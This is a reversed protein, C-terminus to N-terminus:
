HLLDGVRTLQRPPWSFYIFLAKGRIYNEPVFGWYRSDNSHDRNDGMCFYHAEPVVRKIPGLRPANKDYLVIHEADNVTEVFQDSQQTFGRMDRYIFEGDPKKAVTQGNVIVDTGRVEVTDGPVGMIRKIYDKSPDNPFKFVIVDGRQPNTIPIKKGTFPIPVGYLSKSVLIHDGVLLTPIMSGSPIKFAQVIFTRIVLALLLAVVIIETYERVTSTRHLPLHHDIARRLAKFEHEIRKPDDKELTAEFEHIQRQIRHRAATDFLDARRELERRARPLYRRSERRIKKLKRAVFM